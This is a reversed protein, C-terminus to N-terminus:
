EVDVARLGAQSADSPQSPDHCLKKRTRAFVRASALRTERRFTEEHESSLKLREILREFSTARIGCNLMALIVDVDTDENEDAINLLARTVYRQGYSRASGWSQIANKKGSDDRETTFTDEEFHGGVHSLIGTVDLENRHKSRKHRFRLSFGYKSLIPKVTRQINANSAFTSRVKGEVVITGDRTIIPIEGQMAAFAAEFAAKAQMKMVRENADILANIKTVDVNPDSALEVLRGVITQSEPETAKVKAKAMGTASRRALATTMKVIKAEKTSQRQKAM